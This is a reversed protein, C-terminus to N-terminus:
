RMTPPQTPKFFNWSSKAPSVWSGKSAFKAPNMLLVIAPLLLDLFLTAPWIYAPWFLAPAIHAGACVTAGHQAAAWDTEIITLRGLDDPVRLIIPLTKRRLIVCNVAGRYAGNVYYAAVGFLYGLVLLSGARPAANAGIAALAGLIPQVLDTYMTLLSVSAGALAGDVADLWAACFSDILNGLAVGSGAAACSACSSLLVLISAIAAATM